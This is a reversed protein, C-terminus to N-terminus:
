KVCIEDEINKYKAEGIGSVNKIEEISDFRGNSKRYEIIKAAISPGIGSLTELETQTATNINVKSNNAAVDGDVIVNEGGSISIIDKEESADNISPIYIKQGDSVEYALNVNEENALETMGGAAEIVDKIRAGEKLEFVGPNKVEGTIHIFILNDNLTVNELVDDKNVNEIELYNYNKVESKNDFLWCVIICIIVIVGCIILYAKKNKNFNEM